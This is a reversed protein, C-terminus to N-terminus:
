NYEAIRERRAYIENCRSKMDEQDILFYGAVVKQLTDDFIDTKCKVFTDWGAMMKKQLEVGKETLMFKKDKKPVVYCERVLFDCAHSHIKTDVSIKMFSPLHITIDIEAEAIPIDRQFHCFEKRIPLGFTNHFYAFAMAEVKEESSEVVKCEASTMATYKRFYHKSLNRYFMDSEQAAYEQRRLLNIEAFLYSFCGVIGTGVLVGLTTSSLNQINEVINELM